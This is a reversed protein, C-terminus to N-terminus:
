QLPNSSTKFAIAQINSSAVLGAQHENVNQTFEFKIRNKMSDSTRLLQIQILRRVLM